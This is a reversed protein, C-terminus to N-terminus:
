IFPLVSPRTLTSAPRLLTQRSGLLPTQFGEALGQSGPRLTRRDGKTSSVGLGRGGNDRDCDPIDIVSRVKHSSGTYEHAAWFTVVRISQNRIGEVDPAQGTVVTRSDNWPRAPPDFPHGDVCGIPRGGKEDLASAAVNDTSSKPVRGGDRAGGPLFTLNNSCM